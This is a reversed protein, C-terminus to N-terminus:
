EEVHHSSIFEEPSVHHLLLQIHFPGPDPAKLHKYIILIGILLASLQVYLEPTFFWSTIIFTIMTLIVRTSCPNIIIVCSFIIFILALLLVIYNKPILAMLSGFTVAICKGGKGALMPSFAHGLIPALILLLTWISDLGILSLGLVVPFFGKLIDLLICLIGLSKQLRFANAGGPNADTHLTRIDKKLLLIPLLYAYMISGSLFALLVVILKIFM